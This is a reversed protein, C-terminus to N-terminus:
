PVTHLAIPREGSAAVLGRMERVESHSLRAAERRSDYTAPAGFVVRASFGPTGLTKWLHPLFPDEGFWCLESEPVDGEIVYRVAAATVPAGTQVAPEFLSPHFRLVDSGDTSTGEPFLLVPVALKLRQLMEAAVAGASARSSRDIFITGGARAAVGFYPWRSVEIKSVFVCPMAASYILIDLYSLHNSVVLGHSPVAGQASWRIGLSSLVGRSASQLWLSRAVPTLPGQRRIWGLRVMCKTLAWALAGARWCRRLNM